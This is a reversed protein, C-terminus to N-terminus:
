SFRYVLMFVKVLTITLWNELIDSVESWDERKGVLTLDVVPATLFLPPVDRDVEM